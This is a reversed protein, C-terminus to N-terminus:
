FLLVRESHMRSLGQCGWIRWFVKISAELGSPAVMLILGKKDIKRVPQQPCCFSGFIINRFYLMGDIHAWFYSRYQEFTM